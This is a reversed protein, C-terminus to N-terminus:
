TVECNEHVSEPNRIQRLLINSNPSLSLLVWNLLGAIARVSSLLRWAVLPDIALIDQIKQQKMPEIIWEDYLASLLTATTGILCLLIDLGGSQLSLGRKLNDMLGSSIELRDFAAITSIVFCAYFTAQIPMALWAYSKHLVDKSVNVGVKVFVSGYVVKVSFFAFALSSPFYVLMSAEIYCWIYLRNNLKFDWIRNIHDDVSFKVQIILSLNHFATQITLASQISESPTISMLDDTRSELMKEYQKRDTRRFCKDHQVFVDYVPQSLIATMTINKGVQENSSKPNAEVSNRRGYYDELHKPVVSDGSEDQKDHDNLM